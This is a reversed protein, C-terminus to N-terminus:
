DALDPLDHNGSKRGFTDGTICSAFASAVVSMFGSAAFFWLGLRIEAHTEADGRGGLFAVIVGVVVVDVLAWKALFGGFRHAYEASDPLLQCTTKLLPVAIGFIGILGVLLMNQEAWLRQVLLLLSKTEERLTIQGIHPVKTQVTITLVPLLVGLLWCYLSVGAFVKRRIASALCLGVVAALALAGANVWACRIAWRQAELSDSELEDVRQRREAGPNLWGQTLNTLKDELRYQVQNLILGNERILLGRLTEAKTQWHIVSTGAVLAIAAAVILSVAKM